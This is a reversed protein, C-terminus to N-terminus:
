ADTDENDTAEEVEFNEPVVTVHKIGLVSRQKTAM